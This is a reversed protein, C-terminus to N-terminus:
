VEVDTIAIDQNPYFEFPLRFNSVTNLLKKSSPSAATAPCAAGAASM